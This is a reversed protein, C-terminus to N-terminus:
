PSSRPCGASRRRSAWGPPSSSRPRTTAPTSTGSRASTRRRRPPTPPARETPLCRRPRPARSRSRSRSSSARAVRRRGRPKRRRRWSSAPTARRRCRRRRPPPPWRLEPRRSPPAAPAAAAAAPPAAAPTAVAGAAPAAVKFDKPPEGDYAVHLHDQHAGDTFFGPAGISWPAGVETPRVDGSLEAIEGALDRAATSGANVIEGDVRAIDIGRGEFHNSVSGGSTFQAHGTKIVSLEIKHKETLKTLLAIMRPDVEGSRIDKQADADLVLNKNELLAKAAAEVSGGTPELGAPAGASRDAVQEAAPAAAPAAAACRRAGGRPRRGRRAGGGSGGSSAAAPEGVDVAAKPETMADPPDTASPLDKADEAIDAAAKQAEEASKAEPSEKQAIKEAAEEAASKPKPAAAPEPTAAKGGAGAADAPPAAAPPPAAVPAAGNGAAAPDVGPDAGNVADAGAAADGGDPVAPATPKPAGALSGGIAPLNVRSLVDGIAEPIDDLHPAVHEAFQMIGVGEMAAAMMVGALSSKSERLDLTLMAKGAGISMEQALEELGAERCAEAPNRRFRARFAPDVLLREILQAAVDAESTAM